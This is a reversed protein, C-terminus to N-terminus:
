EDIWPNATKSKTSVMRTEHRLLLQPGLQDAEMTREVERGAPQDTHIWNIDAVKKSAFHSRGPAFPWLMMPKKPFLLPWLMMQKKTLFKTEQGRRAGYGRKWYWIAYYM